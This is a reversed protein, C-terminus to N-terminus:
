DNLDEDKVWESFALRGKPTISYCSFSAIGNLIYETWRKFEIYELNLLKPAFRDPLEYDENIALKGLRIWDSKIM